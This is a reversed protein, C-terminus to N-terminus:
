GPWCRPGSSRQCQLKSGPPPAGAAAGPLGAAHHVRAGCVARAGALPVPLAAAADHGGARRGGAGAPGAPARPRRGARRGGGGRGAGHPVPSACAKECPSSTLPNQGLAAATLAAARLQAPTGAMDCRMLPVCTLAGYCAFVAPFCLELTGAIEAVRPVAICAGSGMRSGPATPRPVQLVGGADLEGRLCAAADSLAFFADAQAALLVLCTGAAQAGARRSGRAASQLQMRQRPLWPLGRLTHLSEGCAFAGM